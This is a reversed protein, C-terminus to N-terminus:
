ISFDYVKNKYIVQTGEVIQDDYSVETGDNLKKGVDDLNGTVVKFDSNYIEAMQKIYSYFNISDFEKGTERLFDDIIGNQEENVSERILKEQKDPDLSNLDFVTDSTFLDLIGKYDKFKEQNGANEVQEKACKLAYEPTFSSIKKIAKYDDKLSNSIYKVKSINEVNSVLVQQPKKKRTFFLHTVEEKPEEEEFTIEPLKIGLDEHGLRQVFFKRLSYDVRRSARIISFVMLLNVVIMVILIAITKIM